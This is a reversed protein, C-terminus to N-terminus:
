LHEQSRASRHASLIRSRLPSTPPVVLRGKVRSVFGEETLNSLIRSTTERALSVIDALDQMTVGIALVLSGDPRNELANAFLDALAAEVRPRGESGQLSAFRVLQEHTERALMESFWRASGLHATVLEHFVLGPASRLNCTTLSVATAMHPTGLLASSGGLLWGPGIVAVLVERHDHTLSLRVVGSDILHVSQVRNGQRFLTVGQGYECVPWILCEEPSAGFSGSCTTEIPM